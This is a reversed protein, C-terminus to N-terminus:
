LNILLIYNDIYLLNPPFHSIPMNFLSGFELQTINTYSELIDICQNFSDEFKIIDTTKMEELTEETIQLIKRNKSKSM